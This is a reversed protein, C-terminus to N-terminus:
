FFLANFASFYLADFSPMSGYFHASYYFLPDNLFNLKPYKLWIPGLLRQYQRTWNLWLNKWWYGLLVFFILLIVFPPIRSCFPSFHQQPFSNLSFSTSHFIFALELALLLLHHDWGDHYNTFHWQLLHLPFLIYIYCRRGNIHFKSLLV